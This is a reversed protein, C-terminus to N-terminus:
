LAATAFRFCVFLDVSRKFVDQAHFQKVNGVVFSNLAYNELVIKNGGM